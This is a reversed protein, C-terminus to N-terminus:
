DVPHLFACHLHQYYIVLCLFSCSFWVCETGERGTNLKTNAENKDTCGKRAWRKRPVQVRKKKFFFLYRKNALKLRIEDNETQKVTACALEENTDLFRDRRDSEERGLNM